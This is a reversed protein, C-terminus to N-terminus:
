AKTNYLFQLGKTFKGRRKEKIAPKLRGRINSSLLVEESHRLHTALLKEASISVNYNKPPATDNKINNRSMNMNTFGHKMKMLLELWYMMRRKLVSTWLNVKVSCASNKKHEISMSLRPIWSARVKTMGFHDHLFVGIEALRKKKLRTDDPVIKTSKIYTKAHDGRHKLGAEPWRWPIEKRKQKFVSHWKDTLTELTATFWHCGWEIYRWSIKKM